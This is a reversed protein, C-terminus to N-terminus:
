EIRRFGGLLRNNILSTKVQMRTQLDFPALKQDLAHIDFMQGEQEPPSLGVKRFLLCDKQSVVAARSPKKTDVTTPKGGNAQVSISTGKFAATGDPATAWIRSIYDTM